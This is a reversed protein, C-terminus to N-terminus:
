QGDSDQGDKREKFAFFNIIGALLTIIANVGHVATLLAPVSGDYLDACFLISWCGATLFWLVPVWFAVKKRKM